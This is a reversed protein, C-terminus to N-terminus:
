AARWEGSRLDNFSREFREDLRKDAEVSLGCVFAVLVRVAAATRVMTWDGVQHYESEQRLMHGAGANVMVRRVDAYPVRCVPGKAHSVTWTHAKACQEVFALKHEM